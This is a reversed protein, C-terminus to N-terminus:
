TQTLHLDTAEDISLVDPMPRSRFLERARARWKDADTIVVAQIFLDWMTLIREPLGPLDQLLTSFIYHGTYGGVIFEATRQLDLDPDIVGEAQGNALLMTNFTVWDNFSRMPPRDFALVESTLRAGARVLPDQLIDFTFEASVRLLTEMTPLGQEVIALAKRQSYANQSEIVAHAIDEKGDFHAYFAGTTVGARKAIDVLSAKEFTLENVAEAAAIVM